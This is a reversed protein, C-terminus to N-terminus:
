LMPLLRISKMISKIMNLRCTNKRPWVGKTLSRHFRDVQVQITRAQSFRIRRFGQLLMLIDNPRRFILLRNNHVSM